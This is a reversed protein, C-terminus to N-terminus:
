YVRITIKNNLGYETKFCNLNVTITVTVTTILNPQQCNQTLKMVHHVRMGLSICKNIKNRIKLPFLVWKQTIAAFLSITKSESVIVVYFQM